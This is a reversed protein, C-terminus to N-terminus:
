VVTSVNMPTSLSFIGGKIPFTAEGFSATFRKQSSIHFVYDGREMIGPQSEWRSNRFDMSDSSAKWLDFYLPKEEPTIRLIGEEEPKFVTKIEPLDKGEMISSAFAVITNIVRRKDELGHGSNPVYLVHKRGKLEDYYLNLSDVTWYSDNTGNVILKPVIIDDKYSYPDVIEVLRQGIDTQLKEQLRLKSYDSIQESYAGYCEIQHRMQEAFNLNDFVLPVIGKVRKDVASILWTTWGRKSAGIVIFGKPTQLSQELMEELADIAKKAAKVMPILLPWEIDQSEIFKSFTFAILADEYLGHFLPQNPVDHLVACPLNLRDAITKCFALGESGEESGTILLLVHSGEKFAAPSILKLRHKWAAGKWEQSQLTIHLVDSGLYREKSEINWAYCSDEKDSYERLVSRGSM